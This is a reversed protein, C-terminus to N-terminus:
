EAIGRNYIMDFIEPGKFLWVLAEIAAVIAPICTWCFLVALIGLGVNGRYFEQLGFFGGVLALVIFCWFNIRKRMVDKPKISEHFEEEMTSGTTPQTEPVIFDEETFTEETEEKEVEPAAERDLNDRTRIEDETTEFSPLNQLTEKNSKSKKSM